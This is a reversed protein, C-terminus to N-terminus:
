EEGCLAELCEPYQCKGCDNGQCWGCCHAGTCMFCATCGIWSCACRWLPNQLGWWRDRGHLTVYLRHRLNQLHAEYDYDAPFYNTVLVRYTHMPFNYGGERKVVERLQILRNEVEFAQVTRIRTEDCEENEFWEIDQKVLSLGLLSVQVDGYVGNQIEDLTRTFTQMNNAEGDTIALILLPTNPQEFAHDRLVIQLAETMATGGSPATAFVSELQSARRKSGTPNLLYMWPDMGLVKFVNMWSRLADRAMWWRRKFPSPAGSAQDSSRGGSFGFRSGQNPMGPVGAFSNDPGAFWGRPLANKLAQDLLYANYPTESEINWGFSHPQGLMDLSMSGSNDLIIRVDIGYIPLSLMDRALTSAHTTGELIRELDQIMHMEQKSFWSDDLLRPPYLGSGSVLQDMLCRPARHMTRERAHGWERLTNRRQQRWAESDDGATHNAPAPFHLAQSAAVLDPQPQYMNQPGVQWPEPPASPTMTQQSPANSAFSGKRSDGLADVLAFNTKVDTSPAEQRCTPCMVCGGGSSIGPLCAQCVTHLCPLAKPLHNGKNGTYREFCVPCSM